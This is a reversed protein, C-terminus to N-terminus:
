AEDSAAATEGKGRAARKAPPADVAEAEWDAESVAFGQAILQDAQAEEFGAAEGPQLSLYTKTMVVIKM